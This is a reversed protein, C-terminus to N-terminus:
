ERLIYLHKEQVLQEKFSLFMLNIIKLNLFKLANNQEQNLNFKKAKINRLDFNKDNKIFLNKNGGIVMKLVLGLPTLNYM